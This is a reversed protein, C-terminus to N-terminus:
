VAQNQLQQRIWRRMRIPDQNILWNKRAEEEPTRNPIRFLQQLEILINQFREEEARAEALTKTATDKPESFVHSYKGASQRRRSKRQKKNRRATKVM